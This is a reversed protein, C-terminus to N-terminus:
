RQSKSRLENVVSSVKHMVFFRQLIQMELFFEFHNIDTRQTGQAGRRSDQIGTEHLFTRFYDHDRRLATGHRPSRSLVWLSVIISM